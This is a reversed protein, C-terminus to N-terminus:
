GPRQLFSLRTGRVRGKVMKGADGDRLNEVLRRFKEVGRRTDSM